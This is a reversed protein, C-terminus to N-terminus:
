KAPATPPPTPSPPASGGSGGRDVIVRASQYGAYFEPNSKKFRTMLKDLRNRLVSTTNSILDPMTNTVGARGALATRPASKVGHFKTTLADLATVDAQTIAYDALAALNATALASVSKGTEELEDDSLKDLSSLSFEVQAALNANSNKEALAASQDAIELIKEELSLRVQAKEDTAGSTPAQQRRGAEDIAAIGTKVDAVTDGVAKVGNWISNNKDMYAAVTNFMGTRNFQDRNM